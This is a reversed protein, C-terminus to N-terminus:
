DNNTNCMLCRVSISPPLWRILAAHFSFKLSNIATLANGNQKGRGVSRLCLKTAFSRAAQFDKLDALSASQYRICKQELLKTKTAADSFM